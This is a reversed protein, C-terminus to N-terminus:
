TAPNAGTAGAATLAYGAALTASLSIELPSPNEVTASTCYRAIAMATVSKAALTAPMSSCRITGDCTSVSELARDARHDPEDGQQRRQVFESVFRKEVKEVSKGKIPHFTPTPRWCDADVILEIADAGSQAGASWERIVNASRDLFQIRVRWKPSAAARSQPGQRRPTDVPM